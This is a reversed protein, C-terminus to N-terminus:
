LGHWVFDPSFQDFLDILSPAVLHDYIWFPSEFSENVMPEDVEFFGANSRFGGEIVKQGEAGDINNSESSHKFSTDAPTITNGAEVKKPVTRSSIGNVKTRIGKRIGLKKSM